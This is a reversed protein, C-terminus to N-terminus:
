NKVLIREVLYVARKMDLHLHCRGVVLGGLSTSQCLSGDYALSLFGLTVKPSPPIQRSQHLHLALGQFRSEM